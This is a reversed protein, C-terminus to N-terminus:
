KRSRSSRRKRINKTRRTKRNKRSKKYKMTRKKTARRRKRKGGQSALSEGQQYIRLVHPKSAIEEVYEPALAHEEFAWVDNCVNEDLNARCMPCPLMFMQEDDESAFISGANECYDNLCNNHFIHNCPTKYIAQQTGFDDHCISCIDTPNYESPELWSVSM